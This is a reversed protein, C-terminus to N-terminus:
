AASEKRAPGHCHSFHVSGASHIEITNGTGAERETRLPVPEHGDVPIRKHNKVTEMWTVPEGCHRCRSKAGIRSGRSENAYLWIVDSM